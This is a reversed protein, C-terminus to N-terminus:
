KLLFKSIGVSNYKNNCQSGYDTFVVPVNGIKVHSSQNNSVDLKTKKNPHENECSM